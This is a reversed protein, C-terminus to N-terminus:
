KLMSVRAFSCGAIRVSGYERLTRRLVEEAVLVPSDDPLLVDEGERAPVRLGLGVLLDGEM